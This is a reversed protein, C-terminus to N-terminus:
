ATPVGPAGFETPSGLNSPHRPEVRDNRRRADGSPITRRRHSSRPGRVCECSGVTPANDQRHLRHDRPSGRPQNTRTDGRWRVEARMPRGEGSGARPRRGSLGRPHRFGRGHCPGAPKYENMPSGLRDSRRLQTGDRSWLSRSRGSAGVSTRHDFSVAELEDGRAPPLPPCGSGQSSPPTSLPGSLAPVHGAGSSLM